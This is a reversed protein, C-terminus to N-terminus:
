SCPEIGYRLPLSDRGEIVESLYYTEQGKALRGVSM